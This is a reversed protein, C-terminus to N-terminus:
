SRSAWSLHLLLTARVYLSALCLRGTNHAPLAIIRPRAFLGANKFVPTLSRQIAAPSAGPQKSEKMLVVCWIGTEADKLALYGGPCTINKKEKQYRAECYGTEKLTNANSTYRKMVYGQTRATSKICEQLEALSSFSQGVVVGIHPDLSM